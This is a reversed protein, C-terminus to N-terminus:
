ELLWLQHIQNTRDLIQDVKSIFQQHATDYYEIWRRFEPIRDLTHLRHVAQNFNNGIANLERKMLIMEQIYNDASQNRYFFTVPEHLAVKRIYNSVSKETSNQKFRTLKQYEDNNMRVVIMKRRVNEEKKKMKVHQKVAPSNRAKRCSAGFTVRKYM